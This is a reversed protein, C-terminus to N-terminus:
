TLREQVRVIRRALMRSEDIDIVVGCLQVDNQAVAFKFPLNYLFREIAIEKKLGIVSEYPGTMGLDTIYATGQPLIREDATPIHTHTGMVAAVQGDLYFGLAQKESTAEAHMDVIICDCQDKIKKIEHDATKFPCDKDTMFIRGELNIIGLKISENVSVIMSGVGPNGLPYNAPRILNPIHKIGDLIERQDWIHNGSTFAKIGYSELEDLIKRTVGRGGAANECNALIIDPQHEEKLKPLLQKVARRGPEGFIDGIFLIKM